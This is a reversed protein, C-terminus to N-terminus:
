DNYWRCKEDICWSPFVKNPCREFNGCLCDSSSLPVYPKFYERAYSSFTWLYLFINRSIFYIRYVFLPFILRIPLFRM